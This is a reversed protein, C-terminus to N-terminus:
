PCKPMNCNDFTKGKNCNGNSQWSLRGDVRQCQYVSCITVDSSSQQCQKDNYCQNYEQPCASNLQAFRQTFNQAKSGAVANNGIPGLAGCISLTAIISKGVPNM